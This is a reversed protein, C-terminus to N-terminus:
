EEGISAEEARKHVNDRMCLKTVYQLAGDKQTCLGCVSFITPALMLSCWVLTVANCIYTHISAQPWIGYIKFSRM